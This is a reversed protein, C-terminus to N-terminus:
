VVTLTPAGLETSWSLAETILWNNDGLSLSTTFPLPSYALLASATDNCASIWAATGSAVVSGTIPPQATLESGSLSFLGGASFTKLGLTTSVANAYSTPAAAHIRLSTATAAITALSVGPLITLAGSM